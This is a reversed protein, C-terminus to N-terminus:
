KRNATMKLGTIESHQYGGGDPHNADTRKFPQTRKAQSQNQFRASTSDNMEELWYQSHSVGGLGQAMISPCPNVDLNIRKMALREPVGFQKIVLWM